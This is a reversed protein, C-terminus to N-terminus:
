PGVDVLIFRLPATGENSVTQTTTTQLTFPKGAEVSSKTNGASISLAGEAVYGFNPDATLNESMRSGPLLTIERIRLKYTAAQRLGLPNDSVLLLGGRHLPGVPDDAARLHFAMVKSQPLYRHSHQQRAPILVGEGDSFTKKGDATSVEAAGKVTFFIWAYDHEHPGETLEETRPNFEAAAWKWGAAPPSGVNVDMRVSVTPTPSPM